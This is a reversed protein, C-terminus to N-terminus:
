RVDGVMFKNKIENLEKEIKEREQMLKQENQLADQYEAETKQKLTIAKALLGEMETKEEQTKATTKKTNLEEIQANIEEIKKKLEEKKTNLEEIKLLIDQLNEIKPMSIRYFKSMQTLKRNMEETKQNDLAEILEKPPHYEIVRPSNAGGDFALGAYFRAAELDGSQLFTEAMKSFYATRLLEERVSKTNQTYVSAARPNNWDISQLTQREQVRPGIITYSGFPGSGIRIQSLINQGAMQRNLAERKAQEEAEKLHRNWAEIAKKKEEEWRRRMEEQQRVLADQHSTQPPAFLSSFDSISKFLPQLISQFMQLQKQQSPSLGPTVSRSPKQFPVCVPISKPNPCYCDYTALFDRMRINVKWSELTGYCDVVMRPEPIQWAFSSAAMGIYICFLVTGVILIM